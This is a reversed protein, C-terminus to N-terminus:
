DAAEPLITWGEDDAQINEPELDMDEPFFNLDEVAESVGLFSRGPTSTVISCWKDAGDIFGEEATAVWVASDSLGPLAQDVWFKAV